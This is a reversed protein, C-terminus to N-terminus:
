NFIDNSNVKPMYKIEKIANDIDWPKYPNDSVGYYIGYKINTEVSKKFLEVADVKSLLTRKFRENECLAEAEDFRVTGLRINIISLNTNSTFMFGINEASLKLVGYLSNSYPYDTVKIERNLLSYGNKEYYDTVHNSSALIVKKIGITSAVLCINYTAKLYVDIMKSMMESSVICPQEDIGILNIIVDVDRPIKSLCQEYNSADIFIYDVNNNIYKEMMDAVVLNYERSLGDLLIKGIVGLGGFILIKKKAENCNNM